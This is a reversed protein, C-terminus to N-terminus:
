KLESVTSPKYSIGFGTRTADMLYEYYSKGQIESVTRLIEAYLKLDPLSLKDKDVSDLTKLLEKKAEEITM